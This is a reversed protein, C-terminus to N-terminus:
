GDESNSGDCGGCDSNETNDQQLIWVIVYTFCLNCFINFCHKSFYIAIDSVMWLNDCVNDHRAFDIDRLYSPQHHYPCNFVSIGCLGLLLGISFLSMHYVFWRYVRQKIRNLLMITKKNFRIILYNHSQISIIIMFCSNM